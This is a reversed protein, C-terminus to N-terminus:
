IIILEAKAAMGHFLNESQKFTAIGESHAERVIELDGTNGKSGKVGKSASSIARDIVEHFDPMKARIQAKLMRLQREDFGKTCLEKQELSLSVGGIDVAPGVCGKGILEKQGQSLEAEQLDTPNDWLRCGQLKTFESIVKSISMDDVQDLVEQPLTTRELLFKQVARKTPGSPKNPYRGGGGQVDFFNGMRPYEPHGFPQQRGILIPYALQLLPPKFAKEKSDLGLQNNKLLLVAILLEKLVNDESDSEDGCIRKRGVPREEWGKQIAANVDGAEFSALPATSGYSLLPFICMSHLLGNAFGEEWDEGKVLRHSDWYVTVRNGGPTLSHNLEDFLIRALPMESLVRYSIFVSYFAEGRSILCQYVAEYMEDVSAYRNSINKEMAKATVKVLNHDFRARKEDSLFELISPPKSAMDGAIMICLQLQDDAKFPLNGTVLEFMTVGLSWLDAPYSASAPNLWMEPSMYPRTKVNSNWGTITVGGSKEKEEHLNRASGFDVLRYPYTVIKRDEESAESEVLVINSPNIDSHIIGEAHIEKLASLVSRALKICDTDNIVKLEGIGLTLGHVLEMVFWAANPKIKMSRGDLSALHVTCESKNRTLMELIMGERKLQRLEESQFLKGQPLLLKIAFYSKISSLVKQKRKLSVKMVCGMSGKGVCTEATYQSQLEFPLHKQSVSDGIKAEAILKLMMNHAYIKKAQFLISLLALFLSISGVVGAVSVGAVFSVPQQNASLSDIINATLLTAKPLGAASLYSNLKSETLIKGMAEAVTANMASIKLDVQTEGANAFLRRDYYQMLDDIVISDITTETVNAMVTAFAFIMSASFSNLNLRLVVSVALYVTGSWEQCLSKSNNPDFVFQTPKCPLCQQTDYSLEGGIQNLLQHGAPCGQLIYRGGLITWMGVPLSVNYSGYCVGNVMCPICSAKGPFAGALPDLSYSGPGCKSCSGYGNQDLLLIYGVPCVSANSQVAIEVINSQMQVAGTCDSLAITNSGNVYMFSPGELVAIGSEYKEVSFVPNLGLSFTTSGKKMRGFSNGSILPGSGSLSFPDDTALVQVLSQSDSLITQNFYDKELVRFDFSIGAYKQDHPATSLSIQLAYYTSAYCPGYVANNKHNCPIDPKEKSSELFVNNIEYLLAGGGGFQALNATFSSSGGFALMQKLHLAGGGSGYASNSTFNSLLLYVEVFTDASIAGGALLATCGIFLSNSVDLILQSGSTVTRIAGGYSGAHCDIYSTSLININAVDESRSSESSIFVGGGGQGTQSSTCNTFLCSQLLLFTKREDDTDIKYDHYFSAWIGGGGSESSCNHITINLLQAISDVFSLAGGYGMSRCNTFSSFEIQVQAQAYAQVFAGDSFSSCGSFSSSISLFNSGEVEFLPRTSYESESCTLSLNIVVISTCGTSRLCFISASKTRNMMANDNGSIFIACPFFGYCLNINTHLFVNKNLQMRDWDYVDVFIDVSGDVPWSINQPLSLIWFDSLSDSFCSFHLCPCVDSLICIYFFLNGSKNTCIILVFKFARLFVVCQM